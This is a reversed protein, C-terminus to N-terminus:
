MEPTSSSSVPLNMSAARYFFIICAIIGATILWEIFSPRYSIGDQYQVLFLIDLRNMIVGLLVLVQPFILSVANEASACNKFLIIMPLLVLVFMEVMFLKGAAGQAFMLSLNGKVAVDGMRVVFYVLLAVATGKALGRLIDLDCKHKFVASAAIYECSVMALGAAVASIFFNYPLMTTWWLHNLKAPMLLFLAGLSSQHLFSLIVAAIALPVVIKRSSLVAATNGAGIGEFFPAAFELALVATYIVVCWVVEFMISHHNWMILPHWMTLPKGLDIVLGISVFLYGIFATLVAARAILKYKKLNFIHVAATIAFGGAALAVGVLVDIGIWLGWPIEDSLNTAAGLGNMFRYVAAAAFIIILLLLLWAGTSMKTYKVQQSTM